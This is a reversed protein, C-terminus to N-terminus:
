DELGAAHRAGSRSLFSELRVLKGDRFTMLNSGDGAIEVGDTKSSVVLDVELVVRGDGADIYDVPTAEYRDFASMFEGYATVLGDLGVATPGAEGDLKEIGPGEVPFLGPPGVTVVEPHVIPEMHERYAALAAPDGFLSALDIPGPFLRRALEVDGESV